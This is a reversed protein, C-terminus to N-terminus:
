VLALTATVRARREVYVMALCGLGLYVLGVGLCVAMPGWADGGGVAAQLTTAGWTSPLAASVPWTWGPLYDLAVLMGSLTWIPYSLANALANANPLLVFSSALVLGFMGLALVTVITGVVFAVPDAFSLPVGFLVVGWLVTAFLSAAGIVAYALTIPVFVMVLPRPAAVLPELVGMFRQSQVAAGSGMLVATWLRMLGAGVAAQLLAGSRDGARFMYVALVAFILPMILTMLIEVPSRFLYLVYTRTSVALLRLWGGGRRTVPVRPRQAAAPVSM